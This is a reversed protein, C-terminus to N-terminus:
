RCPRDLGVENKTEHTQGHGMGPDDQDVPIRPVHQKRDVLIDKGFAKMAIGVIELIKGVIVLAKALDHREPLVLKAIKDMLHIIIRQHGLRLGVGARQNSRHPQLPLGRAELEVLAVAGNLCQADM